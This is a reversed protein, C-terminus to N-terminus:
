IDCKKKGIIDSKGSKSNKGSKGSKSSKSSKGSKCVDKAVKSTDM